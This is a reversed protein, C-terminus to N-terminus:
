PQSLALCVSARLPTSGLRAMSVQQQSPLLARRTGAGSYQLGSPHSPTAELGQKWSLPSHLLSVGGGVTAGQLLQGHGSCVRLRVAQSETRAGRAPNRLRKHLGGLVGCMETMENAAVRTQFCCLSLNLLLMCNKNYIDLGAM